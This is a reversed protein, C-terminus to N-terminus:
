SAGIRCAPACLFQRVIEAVLPAHTYQPYHGCNPLEVRAVNPLGELLPREYTTPVLPDRDGCIMLVPQRIAPLTPRLDLRTLMLARRAAAAAPVTSSNELRFRWQEPCSQFVAVDAQRTVLRGFPLSGLTGPMHQAFRSMALEWRSLPRFAFGGQLVARSIRAGSQAMARLAITSGLSSGFVAANGIRLTDLLMMLDDAFDRHQYHSLRASDDGGIPLDYAICTFEHRLSSIVPVFSRARDALGHIFVLPQGVGWVFYPLRYRGTNCIGHRAERQWASLAESLPLAPPTEVRILEDAQRGNPDHTCQHDHILSSM